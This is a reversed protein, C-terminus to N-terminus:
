CNKNFNHFYPKGLSLNTEEKCMFSYTVNRGQDSSQHKQSIYINTYLM